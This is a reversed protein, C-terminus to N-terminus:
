LCRYNFLLSFPLNKSILIKFETDSFQIEENENELVKIFKVIIDSILDLELNPTSRDLRRTAM